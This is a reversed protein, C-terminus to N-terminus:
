LLQQNSQYLLENTEMMSKHKECAFMIISDRVKQPYLIGEGAIMLARQTEDLSLKAALCLSIIKDRGPHKMGNLIQYGYNRQINSSCIVESVSFGKETIKQNIYKHFSLEPESAHDLAHQLIDGTTSNNKIFNTLEETSLNKM